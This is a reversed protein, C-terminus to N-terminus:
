SHHDVTNGSISQRIGGNGAQEGHALPRQQAPELIAYDIRGRQNHALPPLAPPGIV